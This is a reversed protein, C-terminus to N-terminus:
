KVVHSLFKLFPIPLPSTLLSLLLIWDANLILVCFEQPVKQREGPNRFEFILFVQETETVFNSANNIMM